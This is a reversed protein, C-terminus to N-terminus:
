RRPIVDGLCLPLEEPTSLDVTFVSLAVLLKICIHIYREKERERETYIYIYIYTHIYIYIYVCMFTHTNYIYIYTYTYTYIYIYIYININGAKEEGWANLVRYEQTDVATARRIRIYIYIHM